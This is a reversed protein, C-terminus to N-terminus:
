VPACYDLGVKNPKLVRACVFAFRPLTEHFFVGAGTTAAQLAGEVREITDPYWSAVGLAQVVVHAVGVVLVAAAVLKATKCDRNSGKASCALWVM